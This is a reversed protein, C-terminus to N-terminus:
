PPARTNWHSPLDPVLAFLDAAQAMQPPTLMADFVLGRKALAGLGRLFGPRDMLDPARAVHPSLIDRVGRFAPSLAMCADLRDAVDHADLPV